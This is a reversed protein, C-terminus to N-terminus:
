RVLRKNAPIHTHAVNSRGFLLVGLISKFFLGLNFSPRYYDKYIEVQQHAHVINRNKM